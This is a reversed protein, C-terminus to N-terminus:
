TLRSSGAGELAALLVDRSLDDAEAEGWCLGRSFRRLAETHQTLETHSLDM